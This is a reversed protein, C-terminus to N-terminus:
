NKKWLQLSIGRFSSFWILLDFTRVTNWSFSTYFLCCWLGVPHTISSWPSTTPPDPPRLHRCPLKWCWIFHYCCECINQLFIHGLINRSVSTLIGSYSLGRSICCEHMFQCTKLCLYEIDSPKFLLSKSDGLFLPSVIKSQNNWHSLSMMRRQHDNPRKTNDDKLHQIVERMIIFHRCHHWVNCGREPIDWSLM